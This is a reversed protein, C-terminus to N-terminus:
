NKYIMIYKRSAIIVIITIIIIIKNFIYRPLLRDEMLVEVIHVFHIYIANPTTCVFLLHAVYLYTGVCTQDHFHFQFLSLKTNVCLTVMCPVTVYFHSSIQIVTCTSIIFQLHCNRYVCTNPKSSCKLNCACMSVQISSATESLRIM